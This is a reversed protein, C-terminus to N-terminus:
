ISRNISRIPGAVGASGNCPFTSILGSVSLDSFFGTLGASMPGFNNETFKITIPGAAGSSRNFSAMHMKPVSASGNGPKTSGLSLDLLFNGISGAWSIDGLLPNTVLNDATTTTWGPFILAGASTDDAVKVTTFGDSIELLATAGASGVMMATGMVALALSTVFKKKM